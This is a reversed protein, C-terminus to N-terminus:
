IELTEILNQFMLKQVYDSPHLGDNMCNDGYNIDDIVMQNKKLHELVYKYNDVLLINKNKAISRLIEVVEDTHYLRNPYYENSHVSPTPTLLIVMKGKSILKDVIGECNSKLEEMGNILKRDNLGMLVFVLNDDISILEDIHKDIQYTYAGGCGKNEITCAYYNEKLYEELLGWWSNPAIRKLFKKRDEEMIVEETKFSMSSGAGAAVSDGIIKIKVGKALIDKYM